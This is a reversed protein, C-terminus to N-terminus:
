TNYIVMSGRLKAGLSKTRSDLAQYTSNTTDQDHKLHAYVYLKSFREFLQDSFQLTGYLTEASEAVKGKYNSAQESLTEMEKFEQEWAGDTAFITTLDWTLQEPVEARTLVTKAM